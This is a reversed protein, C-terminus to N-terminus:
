NNPYSDAYKKLAFRDLLSLAIGQAEHQPLGKSLHPGIAVNELVTRDPWLNFEQFVIGVRRRYEEPQIRYHVKRKTGDGSSLNKVQRNPGLQVVTKGFAAIEGADINCQLS